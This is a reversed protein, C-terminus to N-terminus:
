GSTCTPRFLYRCEVFVVILTISSSQSSRHDRTPIDHDNCRPKDDPLNGPLIESDVSPSRLDEVSLPEMRLPESSIQNTDFHVEISWNDAQDGVERIKAPCAAGCPRLLDAPHSYFTFGRAQYKDVYDLKVGVNVQPNSNRTPPHHHDYSTHRMNRYQLIAERRFTLTPYLVVLSKPTLYNMVLTSHFKTIPPLFSPKSSEVVDIFNNSKSALKYVRYICSDPSGYHSKKSHPSYDPTAPLFDFGLDTLWDCPGAPLPITAPRFTFNWAGDSVIRYGENVVLWRVVSYGTGFPAYLDFDGPSWHSDRLIFHLVTSGSIVARTDLLLSSFAAVRHASIRSKLLEEFSCRLHNSLKDVLISHTRSLSIVTPISVHSAIGDFCLYFAQLPLPLSNIEAVLNAPGTCSLVPM